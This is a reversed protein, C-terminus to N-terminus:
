IAHDPNLKQPMVSDLSPPEDQMPPPGIGTPFDGGFILAELEDQPPHPPRNDNPNSGPPPRRNLEPFLDRMLTQMPEPMEVKTGAVHRIPVSILSAQVGKKESFEKFIRDWDARKTTILVAHIERGIAQLRDGVIGGLAGQMGERFQWQLVIWFGAGLVVVNVLLWFLIRAYLNLFRRPM